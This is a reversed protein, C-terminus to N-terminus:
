LHHLQSEQPLRLLHVSRQTEEEEPAVPGSPPILAPQPPSLLPLDTPSEAYCGSKRCIWDECKAFETVIMALMGYTTISRKNVLQNFIVWDDLITKNDTPKVTKVGSCVIILLELTNFRKPLWFSIFVASKGWCIAWRHTYNWKMECQYCM